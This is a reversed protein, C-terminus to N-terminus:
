VSELLLPEGDVEHSAAAAAFRGRGFPVAQFIPGAVNDRQDIGDAFKHKQRAVGVACM